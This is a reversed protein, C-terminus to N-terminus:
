KFKVTLTDSISTDAVPPDILYTGVAQSQAFFVERGACSNLTLFLFCTILLSCTISSLHAWYNRKDQPTEFGRLILRDNIFHAYPPYLEVCLLIADELSLTIVTKTVPSFILFSLSDDVDYRILVVTDISFHIPTIDYLCLLLPQALKAILYKPYKVDHM